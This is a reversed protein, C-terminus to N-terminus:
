NPERYTYAAGVNAQMTPFIIMEHINVHWPRDLSWLICEAVDHASLPKIGKYVNAARADDRLRVHAFETEGIGPEINTVRIKKGLLDIRLGDSIARVAFKTGSYVAHNPPVWVGAVSGLNVIHGDNRAIMHPLILRTMYLLGKINTDIMEDWDTPDSDAVPALGRALGANNILISVQSVLDPKSKLAAECQKRDRIDFTLPEIRIENGHKTLLQDKLNQLRDQRRATVILNVGRAALLEALARGFGSSAGTILAWAGKM